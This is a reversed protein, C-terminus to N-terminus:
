LQSYSCTLSTLTTLVTVPTTVIGSFTSIASNKPTSASNSFSGMSQILNCTDQFLSTENSLSTVAVTQDTM